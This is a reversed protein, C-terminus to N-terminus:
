TTKLFDSIFKEVLLPNKRQPLHGYNPIIILKSDKFYSHMKKANEVEVYDMDGHLILTPCIIDNKIGELLSFKNKIFLKIFHRFFKLKDYPEKVSHIKLLVSLFRMSQPDLKKINYDFAIFKEIKQNIEILANLMGPTSEATTSIIILKKVKQPYKITYHLAQVGGFSAGLLIVEQYQFYEIIKELDEFHIDIGLNEYEGTESNGHGRHDFALIDTQFLRSYNEIEYKFHHLATGTYGHIFVIPPIKRTNETKKITQHYCAIKAGNISILEM